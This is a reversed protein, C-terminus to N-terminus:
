SDAEKGAEDTLDANFKAEAAILAEDEFQVSAELGM